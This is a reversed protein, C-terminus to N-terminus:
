IQYSASKPSIKLQARRCIEEFTISDLIKAITDRIEVWVSQFGCSKEVPCREPSSPDVCFIPAPAGEMLRIIEGLTIQNPARALTYGGRVGRRSELYGARKLILLLQELYRVPIDQRQAIEEIRLVGKNYHMALEQLARTAYDGKTSIKM